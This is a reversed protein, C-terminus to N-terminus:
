IVNADRLAKVRADSYGLGQLIDDTDSGLAPAPRAPPDEGISRVPAAVMRYAGASPHTITQIRDHDTVFPADLAQAIDNIPAAPVSGAFLELWEATTRTGCRLIWCIRSSSM